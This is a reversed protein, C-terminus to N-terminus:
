GDADDEKATGWGSEKEEAGQKKLAEKLDKESIRGGELLIEGLKKKTQLEKPITFYFTAGKGPESDIWVSGKHDNIVRKVISLGAGTGEYEEQTQLRKFIVFIEEHYKKDIGIGNDKVFFEHFAERDNYGIEVVPTSDKKKSSFKVANTLLNLFVEEIKIRDCHVIPLDRAVKLEVKKERIDFEIRKVISAALANMDVDEYPNKIRSIRSLTLLDDILAKMRVTGGRIRGLYDRGQRDLKDAYDQELFTTFGEIGRLPARLDHSVTYVFNDLEKNVEELLRKQEELETKKQEVNRKAEVLTDTMLNFSHALEGIEDNTIVQARAGLEGASITKSTRTLERIPRSISRAILLAATVVLLLLLLSITLLTNRLKRASGFIEATDM